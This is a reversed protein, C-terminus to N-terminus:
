NAPIIAEVALTADTSTLGEVWSISHATKGSLLAAQEMVASNVGYINLQVASTRNIGFSEVARDIRDFVAHLDSQQDGATLQASTFVLKAGKVAGGQGIGECAAGSGRTFRTTQIAVGVAKPMLKQIAARAAEAEALSDAFCTARLPIVGASAMASQLASVAAFGSEAKTASFFTLGRENVPRKDESISEIVVLANEQAMSGVQVTTVLPPPMKKESFYENVIGQVRRLDGTGSVFARLKLFTATGNSKDLAKLAEEVQQSLLGKSSLPSTHFVLQNTIGAIAAPADTRSAPMDPGELALQNNPPRKIPKSQPQAFVPGVIAAAILVAGIVPMSM